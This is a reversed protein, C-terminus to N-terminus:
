IGMLGEDDDTDPANPSTQLARVISLGLKIRTSTVEEAPFSQALWIDWEQPNRSPMERPMLGLSPHSRILWGNKMALEGLLLAWAPVDRFAVILNENQIQRDKWALIEVPLLLHVGACALMRETVLDVGELLKPPEASLVWNVGGSALDPHARSFAGSRKDWFVLSPDVVYGKRLLTGLKPAIGSFPLTKAEGDNTRYQWSGANDVFGVQHEGKTYVTYRM